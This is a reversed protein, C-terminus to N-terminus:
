FMSLLTNQEELPLDALVANRVAQRQYQTHMQVLRERIAKNRDMTAQYPGLDIRSVVWKHMVDSNPTIDVVSDVSEVLAVTLRNEGDFAIHTAVGTTTPVIVFDGKKVEPLNCVYTYLTANTTHQYKVKITFAKSDLLALINKDM